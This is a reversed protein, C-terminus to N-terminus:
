GNYKRICEIHATSYPGNKTSADQMCKFFEAKRDSMVPQSAQATHTKYREIYSTLSMGVYIVFVITGIAQIM